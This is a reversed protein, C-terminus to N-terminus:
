ANGNTIIKIDLHKSATIVFLIAKFSFILLTWTFYFLVVQVLIIIIYLSSNLQGTQLWNQCMAANRNARFVDFSWLKEQTKMPYFCMMTGIHTM